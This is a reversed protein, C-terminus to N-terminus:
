RKKTEPKKQPAVITNSVAYWVGNVADKKVIGRTIRGLTRMASQPTKKRSKFVLFDGVIVDGVQWFDKRQKMRRIVVPDHPQYVYINDNHWERWMQTVLRM